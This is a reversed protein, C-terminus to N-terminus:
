APPNPDAPKSPQPIERFAESSPDLKTTPEGQAPVSLKARIRNFEEQSLDGAEYLERFHALQDNANNSACVANNKRWRDLWYLVLAGALIIATLAVTAWLLRPDWIAKRLQTDADGLAQWVAFM